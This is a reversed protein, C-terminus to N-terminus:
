AGQKTASSKPANRNYTNMLNNFHLSSKRNKLHLVGELVLLDIELAKETEVAIKAGWPQYLITGLLLGYLTTILALAMGAGMTKPDSMNSMMSILGLLTGIMGIGPCVKSMNEFMDSAHNMLSQKAKIKAELNHKIEETSFDNVIMAVGERLLDYKISKRANVLSAYGDARVSASLSSLINIVEQQLRRKSKLMNGVLIRVGMAFDGLTHSLLMISPPALLLLVLSPLDYFGSFGTVPYTFVFYLSYFIGALGIATSM